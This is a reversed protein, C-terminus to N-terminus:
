ASYQSIVGAHVAHHLFFFNTETTTEDVRLVPTFGTTEGTAFCGYGHKAFLAILDNPHCGFRASWKRLMETFVIPKQTELLSEAGRFVLLEGGEVDCKVLDVKTATSSVFDDLREVMCPVAEVSEENFLNVSSTKGSEEQSYYFTLEGTADSLGLNYPVVNSLGNLEINKVLSAFTAKIPEFAFVKANPNQAALLLSYWGINAGIDFITKANRGLMLLLESNRGEYTQFNLVEIPAMRRDKSTCAFRLGTQRSKMIVQDDLIEIASIQTHPLLESYRFLVQHCEHMRRIFEAKSIKAQEYESRIENPNM